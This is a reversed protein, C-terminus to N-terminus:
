LTTLEQLETDSLAEDYIRIEKVNGYFDNSGGGNDFNLQSLGTPTNGSTDISAQTGNIFLKFENQKYSIAAKVFDTASSVSGTILAQSVGNLSIFSRVENNTPTFDLTVRNPTGGDNISIQRYTGDDALAAIEAYLVGESSNIVNSLDGTSGGVDASRTVGLSTGYNPIYSTPYSQQELQAGFIINKETGDYTSIPVGDGKALQVRFTAGSTNQTTNIVLSLRYWGNGYDEIKAKDPSGSTGLTGNSVNYYANLTSATAGTSLLRIYDVNDKKVFVSGTYTQSAACGFVQNIRPSGTVASVKLYSANLSGTPSIEVNSEIAANGEKTWYSQTFDESYQTINTSAPELLLSPCGGGTYDLRPVNAEVDTIFGNEDVRTGDTDSVFSSFDANSSNPIVGYATGAQVGSPVYLYKLAM